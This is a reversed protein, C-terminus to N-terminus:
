IPIAKAPPLLLHQFPM